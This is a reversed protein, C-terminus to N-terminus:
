ISRLPTTPPPTAPSGVDVTEIRATESELWHMVTAMAQAIVPDNAKEAAARLHKRARENALDQKRDDLVPTEIVQEWGFQAAMVQYVRMLLPVPFLRIQGLQRDITTLYSVQLSEAIKGVKDGFRMIEDMHFRHPARRIFGPITLHEVISLPDPMEEFDPGLQQTSAAPKTDRRRNSTNTKMSAGYGGCAGVPLPRGARGSTGPTFLKPMLDFFTVRAM